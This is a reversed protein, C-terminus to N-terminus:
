ILITALQASAWKPRRSPSAGLANNDPRLYRAACLLSDSGISQSGGRGEGLRRVFEIKALLFAALSGGVAPAAAKAAASVIFQAPKQQWKQVQIFKARWAGGLRAGDRFIEDRRM